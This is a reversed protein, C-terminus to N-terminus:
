PSGGFAAAAIRMETEDARREMLVAQFRLEDAASDLRRQAM